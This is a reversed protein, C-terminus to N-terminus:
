PSPQESSQDQGAKVKEPFGAEVLSIFVEVLQPAFQKGAGQRLQKIVKEDCLADRYPRASIMAAFADAIALIRADLPITEGKLGEPYGTGDWREHHYLVAPLCSVLSPVNGIINAGLKPHSKIAEWEETTLKGRKSLIKDPIGIKGIDHLLA